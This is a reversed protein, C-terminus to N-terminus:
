RMMSAWMTERQPGKPIRYDPSSVPVPGGLLPATLALLMSALMAGGVLGWLARPAHAFGLTALGADLRDRLTPEPRADARSPPTPPADYWAPEPAPTPRQVPRAPRGRLADYAARTTADLLVSAAHNIAKM